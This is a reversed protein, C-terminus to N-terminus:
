KIKTGGWEVVTFGNREFNEFTQPEIEMPEELATWAMFVRIISDPTPDITLAASDTYAEQQFSILNYANGEMQPLWNIIFENAEKDTLGMKELADELFKETQDGAVVFGKSMDYQTESVGEWFLCYYTRGTNPDILMGGPQAIVNWGDNYEPYTTTLRGDFDLKVTVQIEEEPYLYIVPKAVIVEDPNFATTNQVSGDAGVCVTYQTEQDSFHVIWTGECFDFEARDVEFEGKMARSAIEIAMNEWVIGDALTMSDIIDMAQGSYTDWWGDVNETTIVYSGPLDRIGIFDWIAHNDFTGQFARLGNGLRIQEEELGTGCVGFGQPYYELRLKGEFANEPWFSIGFTYSNEDYECIEYAWGAPLELSMNAYSYAYSVTQYEILKQVERYGSGEAMCQLWIRDGPQIGDIAQIETSQVVTLTVEETIGSEPNLKLVYNGEDQHVPEFTLVKGTYIERTKGSADIAIWGMSSLSEIIDDPIDAISGEELRRCYYVGTGSPYTEQIGDHLVLIEDGTKLESFLSENGSRNSMSVPSNDLLIMYSGNTTVICRGTSVSMSRATMFCFIGGILILIVAIMILPIFVKKKM